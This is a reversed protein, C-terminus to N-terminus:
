RPADPEVEQLRRKLGTNRQAVKNNGLALHVAKKSGVLLVLRRARTVATYLLNRQLMIFHSTLIPIVVAPYESGQSKHITIAYALELSDLDNYEYEVQGHPFEVVLSRTQAEVGVIKGIDGNFVGKKYDNETQIVKDNQRFLRTKHNLEHRAPNLAAQLMANLATVGCEGRYMPCLVQVDDIPDMGFKQPIREKILRSIMAACEAQDDKEIFYFDHLQEQSRDPIYPFDGNNIRHANTIIFSQEDQRFIRSLSITPISGSDIIDRLVNGAGVSPLQNTDGVLILKAQPPVAKLLHHMLITDIMSVEDCILADCELPLNPGRLFKSEGPAFELLRHITKSPEGTSEEMKKAARGTPACQLVTFGLMKLSRIIGRITTTKGTGPGGTLVMVKSSLALNIAELQVESFKIKATREIRSIITDTEIVIKRSPTTLIKMLNEAVRKESTHLAALYVEDGNEIVVDGDGAMRALLATLATPKMEVFERLMECLTDVRSFVHGEGVQQNLSYLLAARARIESDEAIGMSLAIRDASKFGIGYMEDALKYPNETLTEIARDKYRRYIRTALSTSIDYKQLFIMISRIESQSKWSDAIQGLRWEGIGEIELLRKPAKDIIEITEEKFHNTIREAMKPGIGHILGSGLYKKIGFITNPLKVKYSSVKFQKGYEKHSTWEGNMEVFEGVNISPLTGVITVLEKEGECRARAVCYHKEENYYTIREITGSITEVPPAPANKM